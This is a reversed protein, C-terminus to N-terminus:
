LEDDDTWGQSDEVEVVEEDRREKVTEEKVMGWDVNRVVTMKHMEKVEERVASEVM